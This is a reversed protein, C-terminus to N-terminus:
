PPPPRTMSKSGGQDVNMIPRILMITQALKKHVRLFTLKEIIWRTLQKINKIKNDIRVYFYCTVEVFMNLSSCNYAKSLPKKDRLSSERGEGVARRRSSLDSPCSEIWENESAAATAAARRSRRWHSFVNSSPLCHRGRGGLLPLFFPSSLLPSSLLPPFIIDFAYISLYIPRSTRRM